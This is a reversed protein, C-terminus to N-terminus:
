VTHKTFTPEHGYTKSKNNFNIKSNLNNCVRTVMICCYCFVIANDIQINYVTFLNITLFKPNTLMNTMM